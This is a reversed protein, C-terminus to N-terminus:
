VKMSADMLIHGNELYLGRNCLQLLTGMGHSVILATTDESRMNRSNDLASRFLGADGAALAEDIILINHHVLIASAFALRAHM